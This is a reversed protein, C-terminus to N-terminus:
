KSWSEINELNTFHHSPKEVIEVRTSFSVRPFSIVKKQWGLKIFTAHNKGMGNWGVLLVRECVRGGELWIGRCRVSARVPNPKSSYSSACV